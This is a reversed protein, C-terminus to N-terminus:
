FILHYFDGCTTCRSDCTREFVEEIPLDSDSVTSNTSNELEFSISSGISIHLEQNEKEVSSKRWIVISDCETVAGSRNESQYPDSDSGSESANSNTDSDGSIKRKFLEGYAEFLPKSSKAFIGGPAIEM